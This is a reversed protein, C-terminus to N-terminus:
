GEDEAEVDCGPSATAPTLAEVESRDGPDLSAALAMNEAAQDARGGILEHLRDQEIRLRLRAATIDAASARREIKILRGLAKERERLIKECATQAIPGLKAARRGVNRQRDEVPGGREATNRLPSLNRAEQKALNRMASAQISQMKAIAKDAIEAPSAAAGASSSALLVLLSALSITLSFRHVRM